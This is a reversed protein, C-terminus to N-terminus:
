ELVAPPDIAARLDLIPHGDAALQTTYRGVRVLDRVLAAARDTAALIQVLDPARLEDPPATQILETIGRILALPQNIAHAIARATAKVAALQATLREHAIREHALTELAALRQDEHTSFLAMLGGSLLLIVLWNLLLGSLPSTVGLSIFSIASGSYYLLLSCVFWLWRTRRVHRRALQLTAAVDLATNAKEHM